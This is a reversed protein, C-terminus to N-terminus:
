PGAVCRARTSNTETKTTTTLQYSNQTYAQTFFSTSTSTWTVLVSNPFYDNPLDGVGYSPESHFYAERASPLRWDTRGAFDLNNCSDLAQQWTLFTAAGTCNADNAQGQACKKILLGTSEERITGDGQDTFVAQPIKPGSVCRVKLGTNQDSQGIGGAAYATFRGFFSTIPTSAWYSSAGNNPFSIPVANTQSFDGFFSAERATPLRWNRGALTLSSCYEDAAQWYLNLAGAQCTTGNWTSGFSCRQWVLRSSEELVTHGGDQIQFSLPAPTNLFEGDEGTGSCARTSGTSDSCVTQNSDPVLFPTASATPTSSLNLLMSTELAYDKSEPACNWHSLLLLFLINSYKIKRM